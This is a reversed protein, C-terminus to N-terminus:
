CTVLPLAKPFDMCPCEMVIVSRSVCGQSNMLKECFSINCSQFVGWIRSIQGQTVKKEERNDFRNKLSGMKRVNIGDFHSHGYLEFLDWFIGELFTKFQLFPLHVLTKLHFPM